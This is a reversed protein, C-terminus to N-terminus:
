KNQEQLVEMNDTIYKRVNIPCKKHIKLLYWAPIDMMKCGKYPCEMPMPSGDTLLTSDVREYVGHVVSGIYDKYRQTKIESIPKVPGGRPNGTIIGHKKKYREISPKCNEYHHVKCMGTLGFTGRGKHFKAYPLYEGCKSCYKMGEIVEHPKM